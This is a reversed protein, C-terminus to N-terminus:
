TKRHPCCALHRKHGHHPKELLAIYADAYDAFEPLVVRGRVVSPGSGGLGNEQEGEIVM